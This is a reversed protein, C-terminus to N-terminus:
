AGVHAEGSGYDLTIVRFEPDMCDFRDNTAIPVGFADVGAATLGSEASGGQDDEPKALDFSYKNILNM